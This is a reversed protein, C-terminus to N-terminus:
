SRGVEAANKQGYRSPLSIFKRMVQYMWIQQQTAIELSFLKLGLTTAHSEAFQRADAESEAEILLEDALETTGDFSFEALFM